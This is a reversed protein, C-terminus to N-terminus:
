MGPKPIGPDNADDPDWYTSDDDHTRMEQLAQREETTLDRGFECEGCHICRVGDRRRVFVHECAAEDTSEELRV